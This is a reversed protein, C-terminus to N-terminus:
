EATRSTDIAKFKVESTVVEKLESGCDLCFKGEKQSRDCKTCKLIKM